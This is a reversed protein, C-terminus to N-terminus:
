KQTPLVLAKASPLKTFGPWISENPSGLLKVILDLQAQETNGPMLPKHQM